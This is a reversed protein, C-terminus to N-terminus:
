HAGGASEPTIEINTKVEGRKGLPPLVEGDLKMVFGGANGIKRFVIKETAKLTNSEGPKLFFDHYITDMGGDSSSLTIVDFWASDGQNAILTLSIVKRGVGSDNEAPVASQDEQSPPPEPTAEEDEGEQEVAKDEEEGEERMFKEAEPVSSPPEVQEREGGILKIIIFILAIVIIAPIIYKSLIGPYRVREEILEDTQIEWTDGKSKHTQGSQVEYKNLLHGADLGLFDAYTRLFGKVYVKAPLADFNDTELYELNKRTIRTRGSVEELSLGAKERAALLMEGITEEGHSFANGNERDTKRSM